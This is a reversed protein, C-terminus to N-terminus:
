FSEAIYSILTETFFSTAGPMIFHLCDIGEGVHCWEPLLFSAEWVELISINLTKMLPVLLGDSRQRSRTSNLELSSVCCAKRTKQDTLILEPDFYGDDTNFHVASTECWVM